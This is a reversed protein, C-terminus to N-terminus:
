WKLDTPLDDYTIECITEYVEAAPLDGRERCRIAVAKNCAYSALVSAISTYGKRKDGILKEADKRTPRTYRKWFAMLADPEMGDFNPVTHDCELEYTMDTSEGILMARYARIAKVQDTTISPIFKHVLRRGEAVSYEKRQVLRTLYAGSVKM